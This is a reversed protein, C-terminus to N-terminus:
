VGGMLPQAAGKGGTGSSKRKYLSSDRVSDDDDAIDDYNFDDNCCPDAKERPIEEANFIYHGIMLGLVVCFLVELSFSMALCM